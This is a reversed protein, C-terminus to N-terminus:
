RDSWWTSVALGASLGCMLVISTVAAIKARKPMGLGARYDRVM